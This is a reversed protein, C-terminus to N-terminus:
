AVITTPKETEFRQVASRIESWQALCRDIEVHGEQSLEHYRKELEVLGEAGQKKLKRANLLLGGAALLCVVGLFPLMFFAIISVGALIAAFIMRQKPNTAAALKDEEERK